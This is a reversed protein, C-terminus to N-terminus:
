IEVVVNGLVTGGEVAEHALAIDDLAFRQGVAHVLRNQELLKTLSDIALKRDEPTLDYVLFFHLSISSYLLARFPVAVDETMNSGYSVVVGHPALAGQGLLRSTSSFDMDILADAGRGGTLAKIRDAVPEEKYAITEAVGARRAHEAKQASGVTGIVRAGAMVALQAAYHGVASSAGIVVITKGHI